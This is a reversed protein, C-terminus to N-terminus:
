RRSVERYLDILRSGVARRSYRSSVLESGRRGMAPWSARDDLMAEMAASLARAECPVVRGARASAVDHHLPVRDSVIVPVGHAMAEAAAMGFNESHSPLVFCGARAYAQVKAAGGLFGSWTTRGAIGLTAALRKYSEVLAPDGSGAVELRADTRRAAVQAFSELLLELGKKLDIRSLYLFTSPREPDGETGAVERVDIPNPIVVPKIRLGLELVEDREAESTFHMAASSEALSKELLAFSIRKMWGRKTMGYRNMTGLPRIIFPVRAQRALRAASVPPYSFMAHIHVVDYRSVNAQLWSHLAPSYTYFRTHRAFYHFRGGYEEVPRGLPASSLGPGDDNTTAVDVGVGQEALASVYARLAQTPGGRLPSNSPIVHLVKM